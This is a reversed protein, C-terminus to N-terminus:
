LAQGAGTSRDVYRYGNPAGGKQFEEPLLMQYAYRRSLRDPSHIYIKDM